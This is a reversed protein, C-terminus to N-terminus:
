CIYSMWHARKHASHTGEICMKFVDGCRNEEVRFDYKDCVDSYKYYKYVICVLIYPKDRMGRKKRTPTKRAHPQSLSLSPMGLLSAPVSYIGSVVHAFRSEISDSTRMNYVNM